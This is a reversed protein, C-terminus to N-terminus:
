RTPRRRLTSTESGYKMGSGGCIESPVSPATIRMRRAIWSRAASNSTPAAPGIAPSTTASGSSTIPKDSDVTPGDDGPPCISPL